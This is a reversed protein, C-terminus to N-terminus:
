SMAPRAPLSRGSDSGHNLQWARNYCSVGAGERAFIPIGIMEVMAPRGLEM